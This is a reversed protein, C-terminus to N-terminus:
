PRLSRRTNQREAWTAATRQGTELAPWRRLRPPPLGVPLYDRGEGSTSRGEYVVAPGGVGAQAFWSGGPRPSAGALRERRSSLMM